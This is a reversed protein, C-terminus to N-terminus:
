WQSYPVGNLGVQTSTSYVDFVDTGPAPSDPPSEYSRLGWTALAPTTQDPYFPDRPISRLFYLQQVPTAVTPVGGSLETLSPPYGSPVQGLSIVGSATAQKYADIANRIDRLAIRLQYEKERTISTEIVPMAVSALVGLIAVSVVLEVISFGADRRLRPHCAASM